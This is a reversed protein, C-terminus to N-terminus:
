ILLTKIERTLPVMWYTMIINIIIALMYQTNKNYNANKNSTKESWILLPNSIEEETIRCNHYQAGIGEITYCESLLGVCRKKCGTSSEGPFKSCFYYKGRLFFNLLKNKFCSYDKLRTWNHLPNDFFIYFCHHKQLYIDGFLFCNKFGWFKM